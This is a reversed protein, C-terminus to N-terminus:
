GKGKVKKSGRTPRGWGLKILTKDENDKEV